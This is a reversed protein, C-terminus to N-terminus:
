GCRLVTFEAGAQEALQEALGTERRFFEIRQSYNTNIVYLITTPYRDMAEKMVKMFAEYDKEKHFVEHRGNGRNIIHYVINDGLGRVIRPM